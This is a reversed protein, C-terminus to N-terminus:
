LSVLRSVDEVIGDISSFEHLVGDIYVSTIAAGELSSLLIRRLSNGLTIGYGQELPRIVFKGYRDTNKESAEVGGVPKILGRWNRTFIEALMIEQPEQAAELIETTEASIEPTEESEIEPPTELESM